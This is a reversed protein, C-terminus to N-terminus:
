GHYALHYFLEAGKIIIGNEMLDQWLEPNEKQIKKFEERAISLPAFPLGYKTQIAKLENKGELMLVDIDSAKTETKKAYSGFLVVLQSEEIEKLAKAIIYHKQSFELVKEAMYHEFALKMYLHTFDPLYLLTKGVSQEKVIKKKALDKLSTHVREYSYGSREQLEKITKQNGEPFFCRLLNDQAESIGSTWFGIRGTRAM